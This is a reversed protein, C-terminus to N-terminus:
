RNRRKRDLSFWITPPPLLLPLIFWDCHENGRKTIPKTGGSRSVVGVFQNEGSRLRRFRLRLLFSQKRSRQKIKVLEYVLRLDGSQVDRKLKVWKPRRQLGLLYEKIWRKWYHDVLFQVKRWRRRSSKNESLFVGPPLQAVRQRLFHSPTLATFDAPDDSVATIPRNNVISKIEALLTRLELDNLLGDGVVNKLHKKYNASPTRMSRVYSTFRTTALGVQHMQREITKENWEAISEKLERNNGIFDTGRDCWIDEEVSLSDFSRSLIM